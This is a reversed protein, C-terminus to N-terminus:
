AVPAPTQESLAYHDGERALSLRRRHFAALTSRIAADIEASKAVDCGLALATNGIRRAVSMAADADIDLVGVRAGERAFTEAICAGMGSGAGTVIAVKDNLRM